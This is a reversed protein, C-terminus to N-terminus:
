YSIHDIIFIYTDEKTDSLKVTLTASLDTENGNFLLKCQYGDLVLDYAMTGTSSNQDWNESANAIVFSTIEPGSSSHQTWVLTNETKTITSAIAIEQGSFSVSSSTTTFVTDNAQANVATYGLVFILVTISKYIHRM